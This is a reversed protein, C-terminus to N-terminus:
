TCVLQGKSNWSITAFWKREHYPDPGVVSLKTGDKPLADVRGHFSPGIGSTGYAYVEHPNEKVAKKLSAKTKHGEVGVNVYSM